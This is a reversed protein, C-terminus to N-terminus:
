VDPWVATRLDGVFKDRQTENILARRDRFEESFERFAIYGDSTKPQLRIKTTDGSYEWRDVTYNGETIGLLTSTIEIWDGLRISSLGALEASVSLPIKARQTALATGYSKAEYNSSIGADRVVETKVFDYDAQSTAADYTYTVEEDGIRAGYIITQNAMTSMDYRTKFWRLVNRDKLITAAADPTNKWNVQTTGLPVWFVAKDIPAVYQLIEFRTKDSAHWTTIGALTEVSTTLTVLPDGGTVIGNIRNYLEKVISYKFGEWIGVGNVGYDITATASKLTNYTTGADDPDRLTDTIAYINTVGTTTLDLELNIHYIDTLSMAWGWLDTIFQVKAYGTAHTIDALFDKPIEATFKIREASPYIRADITKWTPGTYDVVQLAYGDSFLISTAKAVIHVRGGTIASFLSGQLAQVWFSYTFWVIAGGTVADYAADDFEADAWGGAEIANAGDVEHNAPPVNIKISGFNSNSFCIYCGNWEDIDWSMNDDIFYSSAGNTYAPARYAETADDIAGHAGSERLGSGDLDERFDYHVREDKLQNMWDECTLSLVTGIREAALIRGNFICTNTSDYLLAQGSGVYIVDGVADSDYKQLMSGTPDAIRITAKACENFNQVISADIFKNERAPTSMAATTWYATKLIM